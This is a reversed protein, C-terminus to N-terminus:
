DKKSGGLISKSGAAQFAGLLVMVEGRYGSDILGPSNVVTLGHKAAFEELEPRRAPQGRRVDRHHSPATEESRQGGRRRTRREAGRRYAGLVVRREHARNGPRVLPNRDDSEAAPDREVDAVVPGGSVRTDVDHPVEELSATAEDIRRRHVSRRLLHDAVSERLEPHRRADEGGVLYPDRGRRPPRRLDLCGAPVPVHRAEIQKLVDRLMHYPMGLEIVDYSAKTRVRELPFTFVGQPVFVAAGNEAIFPDQHQLRRRLPELEARTKSSVLILPIGYTRLAQLAPAAAEWSATGTDLLTGDLDVFVVYHPMSFEALWETVAYTTVLKQMM